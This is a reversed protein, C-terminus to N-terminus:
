GGCKTILEDLDKLQKIGEIFILRCLEPHNCETLELFCKALKAGRIAMEVNQRAEM